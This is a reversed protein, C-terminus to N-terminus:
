NLPYTMTEKFFFFVFFLAVMDRRMLAKRNILNFIRFLGKLMIFVVFFVKYKTFIKKEQKSSHLTRTIYFHKEESFSIKTLTKIRNAFCM